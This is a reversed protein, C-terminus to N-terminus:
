LAVRRTGPCSSFGRRMQPAKQEGLSIPVFGALTHCATVGPMVGGTVWQISTHYIGSIWMWLFVIKTLVSFRWYCRVPFYLNKNFFIFSDAFMPIDEADDVAPFLHHNVAEQLGLCSSGSDKSRWCSGSCFLICQTVSLYCSCSWVLIHRSFGFSPHQHALGEKWCCCALTWEWQQNQSTHDRASLASVGWLSSLLALGWFSFGSM